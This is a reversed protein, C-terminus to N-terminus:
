KTKLFFVNWIKSCNLSGLSFRNAITKRLTVFTFVVNHFVKSDSKISHKPSISQLHHLPCIGISSLFFSKYVHPLDVQLNKETRKEVVTAVDM